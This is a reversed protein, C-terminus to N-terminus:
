RVVAGNADRLPRVRTLFWRFIGDKGRLPFEMELPAGTALSRSWGAVVADVMSPDHVAQWGWGEMQEFTTGTYEYWRENYYDIHGDARATWALEPM